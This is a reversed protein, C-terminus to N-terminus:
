GLEARPSRAILRDRLEPSLLAATAGRFRSEVLTALEAFVADLAAYTERPPMGRGMVDAMAHALEVYREDGDVIPVILTALQRFWLARAAPPIAKHDRPELLFFDGPEVSQDIWDTMGADAYVFRRALCYIWLILKFTAYSSGFALVDDGRGALGCIEGAAAHTSPAIVECFKAIMKDPAACVETSGVLTGSVEALEILSQPTIPPPQWREALQRVLCAMSLIGTGQTAKALAAAYPPPPTGDRLIFFWPLASGLQSVYWVDRLDPAYTRGAAYRAQLLALADLIADWHTTTQRLASVNMPNGHRSGAYPCTQYAIEGPQLHEPPTRGERIPRGETDRHFREEVM